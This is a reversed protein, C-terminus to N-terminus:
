RSPFPFRAAGFARATLLDETNSTEDLDLRGYLPREQDASGALSRRVRYLDVFM